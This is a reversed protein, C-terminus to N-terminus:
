DVSGSNGSDQHASKRWASPLELLLQEFFKLQDTLKSSQSSSGTQPWLAQILYAKRDGYAEEELGLRERVAGWATEASRPAKLVKGQEDVFAFLVTSWETSNKFMEMHVIANQANEDVTTPGLHNVIERRDIRWGNGVYCKTVDHWHDYPYAVAIIVVDDDRGYAAQVSRIREEHRWIKSKDQESARRWGHVEAPFDASAFTQMPEPDVPTTLVRWARLERPAQYVILAALVAIITARLWKTSASAAARQAEIMPTTSQIQEDVRPNGIWRNWFDGLPSRTEACDAFLWNLSHDIWLIALVSGSLAVYGVLDHRWGTTLDIQFWRWAAILCTVRFINFMVACAGSCLLLAVFHVVGRSKWVALLAGVAMCTLFSIIGSCADDMFFQNDSLSFVNGELLHHIGFLDALRSSGASALLRLQNLAAHDYTLPARLAIFLSLWVPLLPYRSSGYGWYCFTGGVILVLALYVLWASPTLIGLILSAFAFTALINGVISPSAFATFYSKRRLIVIGTLVALFVVAFEYQPRRTLSNLYRLCLPLGAIASLTAIPWWRAITAENRAEIITSAVTMVEQGEKM